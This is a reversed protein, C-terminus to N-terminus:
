HLSFEHYTEEYPSWQDIFATLTFKDYLSNEPTGWDILGVAWLFGDDSVPFSSDESDGGLAFADQLTSIQFNTEKRGLMVLLYNSFLTSIGLILVIYLLGGCVSSM